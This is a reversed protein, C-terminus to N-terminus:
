KGGDQVTPSGIFGSAHVNEPDDYVSLPTGVQQILGDKMIVIRDALTMAEVQDHTVYVITTEVKQHLRKIETRM